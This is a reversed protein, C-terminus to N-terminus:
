KNVGYKKIMKTRNNKTLKQVITYNPNKNEKIVIIEEREGSSSNIGSLITGPKQGCLLQIRLERCCDFTKM